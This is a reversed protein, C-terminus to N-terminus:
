RPLKAGPFSDLLSYPHVLDLGVPVDLYGAQGGPVGTHGYQWVIRKTQMDIVIVRDHYEDSVLVDHNPLEIAFSPDFLEGPGRKPDFKWLVKGATTFIAVAGPHTHDVAILDGSSTENTGLPLKFGPVKLAKTLKGDAAILDIWGGTLETVVAGGGSLPFASAPSAFTAPPDHRCKGTKGLQAVVKHQPPKVVVIRCNRIDGAVLKGDGEELAASPDHLYNQKAGFVGYHGYRYVVKRNSVQLLEIRSHSEETIAIQSGAANFFAYDPNIPAVYISQPHYSWVRQGSPSVVLLQRSGWDSILLNGPLATPDSDVTLRGKGSVVSTPTRPGKAPPKISGGGLGDSIIVVVLAIVAVLILLRIRGNRRHRRHAALRRQHIEEATHEYSTPFLDAAQRALEEEYTLPRGAQAGDAFAEDDPLPGGELTAEDDPTDGGLGGSLTDEDGAEEDAEDATGDAGLAEQHDPEGEEPPGGFPSDAPEDSAGQSPEGAGGEEGGGREEDRQRRYEEFSPIHDDEEDEQDRFINHIGTEPLDDEGSPEEPQALEERPDDDEPPREGSPPTKDDDDAM